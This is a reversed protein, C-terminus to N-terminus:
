QFKSGRVSLYINGLWHCRAELQYSWYSNSLGTSLSFLAIENTSLKLLLQESFTFHIKLYKWWVAIFSASIHAHRSTFINNNMKNKWIYFKEVDNKFNSIAISTWNLQINLESVFSTFSGVKSQSKKLSTFSLTNKTMKQCHFHYIKLLSTCYFQSHTNFSFPLLNLKIM